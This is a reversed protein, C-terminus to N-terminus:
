PKIKQIIIQQGVYLYKFYGKYLNCFMDVALKVDQDVGDAKFKYLYDDIILIGDSELLNWALVLDNIVEKTKHGGDVYILDFKNKDVILKALEFSSDGDITVIQKDSHNNSIISINKNFNIKSTDDYSWNDICKITKLSPINDIFWVASRGEYSGIELVTHVDKKNLLIKNWIPTKNTVWDTTFVYEM